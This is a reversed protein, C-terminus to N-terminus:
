QANSLSVDSGKDRGPGKLWVKDQDPLVRVAHRQSLVEAAKDDAELITADVRDVGEVGDVVEATLGPHYAVIWSYQMGVSCFLYRPGTFCWVRSGTQKM